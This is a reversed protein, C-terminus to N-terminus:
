EAGCIGATGSGREAMGGDRQGAAPGQDRGMGMENAVGGRRRGSVVDRRGANASSFISACASAAM